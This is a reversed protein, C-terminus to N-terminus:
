IKSNLVDVLIDDFDEGLDLRVQIYDRWHSHKWYSLLWRPKFDLAKWVQSLPCKRTLLSLSNSDRSSKRARMDYIYHPIVCDKYERSFLQKRTIGFNKCVRSVFKKYLKVKVNVGKAEEM